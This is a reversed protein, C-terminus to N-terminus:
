TCVGDAWAPTGRKNMERFSVANNKILVTPERRCVCMYAYICLWADWPRTESFACYILVTYPVASIELRFFSRNIDLRLPILLPRSSITYILRYVLLKCPRLIEDLSGNFRNKNIRSINSGGGDRNRFNISIM